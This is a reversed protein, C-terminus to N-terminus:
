KWEYAITGILKLKEFHLTNKKLNIKHFDENHIPNLSYEVTATIKWM